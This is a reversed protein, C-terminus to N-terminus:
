ISDICDKLLSQAYVLNQYRVCARVCARVSLPLVKHGKVMRRIAPAYFLFKRKFSTMVYAISYIHTGSMVHIDHCTRWNSSEVISLSVFKFLERTLPCIWLQWDHDNIPSYKILPCKANLVTSPWNLGYWVKNEKFLSIKYCM